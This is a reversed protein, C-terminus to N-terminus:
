VFIYDPPPTPIKLYYPEKKVLSLFFIAGVSNSDKFLFLNNYVSPKNHFYKHFIIEKEYPEDDAIEFTKTIADVKNLSLKLISSGVVFFLISLIAIAKLLKVNQQQNM